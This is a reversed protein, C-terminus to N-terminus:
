DEAARRSQRGQGQGRRGQGDQAGPGRQGRMQSMRDKMKERIEDYRALQETTLVAKIKSTLQVRTVAQDGMAAGVSAALQRLTSPDKEDAIAERLKTNAERVAQRGKDIDEQSAAVIDDIKAQQQDTLDLAKLMRLM